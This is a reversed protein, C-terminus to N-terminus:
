VQLLSSTLWCTISLCRRGRCATCHVDRHGDTRGGSQGVPRVVHRPPGAQGQVARGRGGLLQAPGESSGRVTVHGQHGGGPRRQVEPDPVDLGSVLPEVAAPGLVRLGVLGDVLAGLQQDVTLTIM